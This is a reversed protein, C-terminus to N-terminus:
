KIHLQDTNLLVTIHLKVAANVNGEPIAMKVMISSSPLKIQPVVKNASVDTTQKMQDNIKGQDSENLYNILFHFLGFHMLVVWELVNVKAEM